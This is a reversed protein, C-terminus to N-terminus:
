TSILNLLEGHTEKQEKMDLRTRFAELKLYNYLMLTMSHGATEKNLEEEQVCQMFKSKIGDLIDGDIM